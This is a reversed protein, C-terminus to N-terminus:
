NASALTTPLQYNTAPLQYNTTPQQNNTTPLQHNTTPRQHNNTPLQHNTTPQGDRKPSRTKGNITVAMDEFIKSTKYRIAKEYHALNM